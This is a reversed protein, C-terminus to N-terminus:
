LLGSDERGSGSPTTRDYCGTTRDYYGTTRDDCGATRGALAM